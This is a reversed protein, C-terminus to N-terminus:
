VGPMTRAQDAILDWAEVENWEPHRPAAPDTNIRILPESFESQNALELACDWSLRRRVESAVLQAFAGQDGVIGSPNRRSIGTGSELAELFHRYDLALLRVHINDRVYLPTAVRAVEGAKWTRLLFELFRPEGHTGFPNPIVLKGLRMGALGAEYCFVQWTLAKSLGYPLISPLDDSGAGEGGEFVSGTLLVKGCGGKGLAALVRRLNHTNNALAQVADFDLSRYNTVDAAHHCYVDWPRAALELFEQSGFSCCFAAPGEQCLQAVRWGRLDTYAEAFAGRFTCTVEHGARRLERVIWFGTFSSGGSFLVRM